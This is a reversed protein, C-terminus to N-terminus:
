DLMRAIRYATFNRSVGKIQLGTIPSAEVKDKVLKYTQPSILVQGPRAASCLRAGLNAAKGIVTYDTHRPCGIEGAILEGSAIGVGIPAPEINNRKWNRMVTQHISQMKLGVRVACLAHDAQPFPAGFLAMAGDGIFKDLTGKHTLIVEAMQGLAENIFGVLLEPKTHEALVTSGRMDSYLVSLM